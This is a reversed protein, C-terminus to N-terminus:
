NLAALRTRITNVEDQLHPDANAWLALARQYHRRSLAANGQKDYIQARRLHSPALYM